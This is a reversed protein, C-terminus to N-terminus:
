DSHTTPNKAGTPKGPRRPGAPPTPRYRRSVLNKKIERQQQQVPNGLAIAISTSLVDVVSLHLLRSTMPSYQDYDEDHDAALVIPCIAALPSGSSTIAIVTAGSRVALEATDLLDRSQGSNSIIICADRSSLLTAAMVMMHGDAYAVTNCGLRFLKHQADQAVIGSNGVGYFEIRGDAHITRSIEDSAQQIAATSIQNRYNLLTGIHNELVKEALSDIDDDATVNRHVFPVGQAVSAALKLKFDSLGSYGLKRCFRVVTPKSVGSRRALEAVPLRCFENPDQLVLQAVSAEATALAGLKNEIGKLLSM